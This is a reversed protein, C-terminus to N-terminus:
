AAVGITLANDHCDIRWAGNFMQLRRKTVVGVCPEKCPNQMFLSRIKYAFARPRFLRSTIPRYSDVVALLKRMTQRPRIHGAFPRQFMYVVYVAVLEVIPKAIQAWYRSKAIQLVYPFSSFCVFNTQKANAGMLTFPARLYHGVANNDAFRSKIGWFCRMFRIQIQLPLKM